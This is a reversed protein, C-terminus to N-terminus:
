PVKVVKANKDKSFAGDFFKAKRWPAGKSSSNYAYRLEEDAQINKSAYFSIMVENKRNFKKTPQCNPLHFPDVDNIYRGLCDSRETADLKVNEPKGTDFIYIGDANNDTSRDGRYNLIFEGKSFFRNVFLGWGAFCTEKVYFDEPDKEEFNLHNQRWADDLKGKNVERRSSMVCDRSIFSKSIKVLRWQQEITTTIDNVVRM